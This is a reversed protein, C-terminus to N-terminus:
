NSDYGSAPCCGACCDDVCDFCILCCCFSGCFWPWFGVPERQRRKEVVIVRTPSPSVSRPGEVEIILGRRGRSAQHARPPPRPDSAMGATDALLGHHLFLLSCVPITATAGARLLLWGNRSRASDTRVGFFHRRHHLHPEATSSPRQWSIVGGAEHPTGIIHQLQGIVPSRFRM